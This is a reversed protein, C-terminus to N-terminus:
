GGGNFVMHVVVVDIMCVRPVKLDMPELTWEISGHVDHNWPRNLDYVSAGCRHLNVRTVVKTGMNRTLHHQLGVGCVEREVQERMLEKFGVEGIIKDEHTDAVVRRDKGCPRPSSYRPFHTLEDGNCQQHRTSNEQHTQARVRGLGKVVNWAPLYWRM